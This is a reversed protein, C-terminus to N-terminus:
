SNGSPMSYRRSNLTTSGKWRPWSAPWIKTPPWCKELRVFTRMIEVNVQIANPSNLVSSLMAVGQETFAYPPIRRGGRGKSIVSQSRLVEFEETSLQFMFDEPFRTQQRSVAQNLTRTDIGYLNALDQDLMVKHGRILLVCQEIRKAPIISTSEAM